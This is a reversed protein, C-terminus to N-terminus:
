SSGHLFWAQVTREVFKLSISTHALALLSIQFRSVKKLKFENLTQNSKDTSKFICAHQFSQLRIDIQMSTM